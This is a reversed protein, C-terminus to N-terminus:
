DYDPAQGGPPRALRWPELGSTVLFSRLSATQDPFALHLKPDETVLVTRLQLALAVYQAQYASM